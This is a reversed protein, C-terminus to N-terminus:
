VLGRTEATLKQAYELAMGVLALMLGVAIPWLDVQLPLPWIRNYVGEIGLEGLALNNGIGTLLQAIVSGVSVIGGAGVFSWTLSRLFPEKRLLRWNLYVFTLAVLLHTVIAIISGITLLSGAAPSLGSVYVTASDLTGGILTASAGPVPQLTEDVLLSLFRQGTVLESIVSFGGLLLVLGAYVLSGVCLLQLAVRDAAGWPAVVPTAESM